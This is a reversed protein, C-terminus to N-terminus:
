HNLCFVWTGFTTPLFGAVASIMKCASNIQVWFMSSTIRCIPPHINLFQQSVFGLEMTAICSKLVRWGVSVLTECFFLIFYNKKGDPKSTHWSGRSTGTSWRSTTAPPTLSLSVPAATTPSGSATAASTWTFRPTVTWRSGTTTGAWGIPSPASRTAATM